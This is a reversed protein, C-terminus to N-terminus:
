LGLLATLETRLRDLASRAAARQDDLPAPDGVRGVIELYCKLKPETGSPRVVVRVRSTRHILADTAPLLDTSEEVADGLLRAPPAARLRRMADAILSLDAVRFSLQDTVHLGFRRALDDLADPIGRGTAKLGVM